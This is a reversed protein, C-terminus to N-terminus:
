LEATTPRVPSLTFANVSVIARVGGFPRVLMPVSAHEKAEVGIRGEATGGGRGVSCLKAIKSWRRWGAGDATAQGFCDEASRVRNGGGEGRHRVGGINQSSTYPAIERTLKPWGPSSSDSGYEGLVESGAFAFARSDEGEKEAQRGSKKGRLLDSSCM